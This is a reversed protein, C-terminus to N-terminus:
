LYTFSLTNEWFEIANRRVMADHWQMFTQGLWYCSDGLRTWNDRCKPEAFYKKKIWSNIMVCKLCNCPCVNSNHWHVRVRVCKKCLYCIINILPIIALRYTYLWHLNTMLQNSMWLHFRIWNIGLSHDCPIYVFPAVFKM